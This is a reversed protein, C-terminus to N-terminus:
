GRQDYDRNNDPLLIGGGGQAKFEEETLRLGTYTNLYERKSNYLWVEGTPQLDKLSIAGKQLSKLFKIKDARTTPEKM